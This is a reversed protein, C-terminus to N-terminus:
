EVAKEALRGKVFLYTADYLARVDPDTALYARGLLNVEQYYAHIAGDMYGYKLGAWLYDLYRERGAASTLVTGDAEIEVGLGHAYARRAADLLRNRALRDNFMYNPQLIVVDFGLEQWQEVGQASFHPIWFLKYGLEHVYAATRQILEADGPSSLSEALWYFGILDLRAFGHEEWRRLAEDIYATIAKARSDLAAQDGQEEPAFRVTRGTGQPDGFNTQSPHPYPIMLIVKARYDSDDLERGIRQVAEDFADIYYGPTFVQDLFALWDAWTVGHGVGYDRQGDPTRLSLFLFTDFFWDYWELRPLGGLERRMEGYGVYPLVDTLHWAVTGHTYILVIDRAGAAAASAPPHYGPGEWVGGAPFRNLIRDLDTQGALWTADLVPADEPGTVRVSHVVIPASETRMGVLGTRHRWVPDMGQLIPTDNIYATMRRGQMDVRVAIAEGAEPVFASQALMQFQRPSGEFRVLRTGTADFLLGYGHWQGQWRFFLKINDSATLPRVLQFAAEFSVDAWDPHGGVLESVYRDDSRLGGPLEAWTGVVETWLNTGQAFDDSFLVKTQAHASLGAALILCFLIPVRRHLHRAAMVHAPGCACM